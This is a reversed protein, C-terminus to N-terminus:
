VARSSPELARQAAAVLEDSRYPKGLFGLHPDAALAQELDHRPIGSCLLVPVERSRQRIARLLEDGNMKPMTLDLVVLRYHSPNASFIRLAEGGDRATRVLYGAQELSRRAHTRDVIDDDALLVQGIELRLREVTLEDTVPLLKSAVPFIVEVTTGRRLESRIRIGGGHIKVIGHTAALGLGRGAFRTSYFPEFIRGMHEAAIGEGDDRVELVVYRGTPLYPGLRAQKLEETELAAVRTTLSITGRASRQAEAANAVLQCIVREIQSRDGRFPAMQPSLSLQLSASDGIQERLAPVLDEILRNLDIRKPQMRAQGAYALMQYCLESARHAAQEISCVLEHEMSGPEIRERLMDANGLVGVMLNNFDHAVGGALVGISEMKKSREIRDHLARRDSELRKNEAIDTLIVSITAAGDQPGNPAARLSLPLDPRGAFTVEVTHPSRGDLAEKRMVAELDRSTPDLWDGLRTGVLRSPQAEPASQETGTAAAESASEPGADDSPGLERNSYLITGEADLELIWAPLTSLLAGLDAAVAPRPDILDTTPPAPSSEGPLTGPENKSNM